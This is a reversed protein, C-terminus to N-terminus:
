LEKLGGLDVLAAPAALGLKMAALLSQGGALLKADAGGAARGAESLSSPKAYNFAQM